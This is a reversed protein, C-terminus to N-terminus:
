ERDNRLSPSPVTFQAVCIHARASLFCSARKQSGQREEYCVQHETPGQHRPNGPVAVLDAQKGVTLTGLRDAVDCIEAPVRTASALADVPSMGGEVLLEIERIGAWTGDIEDTPLLDTGSLIPICADLARQFGAFHTKAAEKQKALQWPPAGNRELYDGCNTVALTPCLYIDNRAMMEVTEQDLEYAHEICDVGAAIADRIPGPASAHVTVHKGARHAVEVAARMEEVSAQADSVSEHPSGLGGSICMKILDAGARLQARAARAFGV